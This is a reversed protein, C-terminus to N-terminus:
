KRAMVVNWVTDASFGYKEFDELCFGNKWLLLILAEQNKAEKSFKDYLSQKEKDYDAILLEKIEDASLGIFKSIEQLDSVKGVDHNKCYARLISLQADKYGKEYGPMAFDEDVATQKQAITTTFNQSRKCGCSRSYGHILKYQNVLQKRGCICQCLVMRAGSKKTVTQPDVITWYGYRDGKHLIYTRAGGQPKRSEKYTQIAEDTINWYRGVKIGQLKGSHLAAYVNYISCQLEEAIEKITKSM